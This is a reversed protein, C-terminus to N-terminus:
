PMRNMLGEQLRQPLFFFTKRAPMEAGFLFFILEGGGLNRASVRGPGEAGGRRGPLGGGGRRPNEVFFM